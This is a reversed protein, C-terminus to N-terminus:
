REQRVLWCHEDLRRITQQVTEATLDAPAAALQLTLTTATRDLIQVGAPLVPDRDAVRGQATLWTIWGLVPYHKLEDPSQFLVTRAVM